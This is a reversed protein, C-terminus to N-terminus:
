KKNGGIRNKAISIEKICKNIKDNNSYICNLRNDIIILMRVYESITLDNKYANKKLIIKEKQKLRITLKSDYLKLHNNM